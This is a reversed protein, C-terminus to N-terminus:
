GKVAKAVFVGPFAREEAVRFGRSRIEREVTDRGGGFAIVWTVSGRLRDTDPRSTLYYGAVLALFDSTVLLHDGNARNTDVYAAASRWDEPFPARYWQVVPGLAWLCVAAVAVAGWWGPAQSLLYAACLSVAPVVVILYRDLFMPHRTSVAAAAVLPLALWGVVLVGKWREARAALLVAGVFAVLAIVWRGGALSHVTSAFVDRSLPPIFTPGEQRRMAFAASPLALLAVIVAAYVAPRGPRPRFSFASAAHAVLVLGVFFHAYM